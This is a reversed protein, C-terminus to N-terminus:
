GSETKEGSTPSASLVQSAMAIAEVAAAAQHREDRYMALTLAAQSLAADQKATTERQVLVLKELARITESAKERTAQLKEDARRQVDETAQQVQQQVQLQVSRFTQAAAEELEAIREDKARLLAETGGAGRLEALEAQLRSVQQETQLNDVIAVDDDSGGSASRSGRTAMAGFEHM